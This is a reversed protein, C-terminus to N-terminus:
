VAYSIRPMTKTVTPRWQVHPVRTGEHEGDHEISSISKTECRITEKMEFETTEELRGDGGGFRM